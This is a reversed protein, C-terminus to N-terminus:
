KQPPLNVDRDVYAVVATGAEVEADKGRVLAGLGYFVSLGIAAGTNSDGTRAKSGRLYVLNDGVKLYNININLKGGKGMQGAKKALAVEGRAKCGRRAVIVDGVRLDEDLVLNVPDHQSATKSSLSESIRLTVEQGEKLLVTGLADEIRAEIRTPQQADLTVNREFDKKGELSVRLEHSGPRAKTALEGQAGVKGQLEGDLYVEAGPSTVVVMEGTLADIRAEIRTAQGAALTIREEFDKMGELSVKLAHAGLGAKVALEGKADTRGELAGDLYVEAGPSTVVLLQTRVAASAQRLAGILTDDGGLLRLTRLYQEDALFDIGRQRVLAAARENSVGGGVLEGVQERTLPKAARLAQIVSEQAGAKQLAGLYDDTPEFDIGQEQVRKVLETAGMGFKVLDMIQDKTLPPNAQQPGAPPAALALFMILILVSPRM